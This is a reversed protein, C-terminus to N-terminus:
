KVTLTGTMNPHVDCAFQYTGAPLAPVAYNRTAVGPFIEGKFVSSGSQDHIDINHPIGDDQNDFAITFPAQAPAEISQQEYMINKATVQVTTAGAQDSPAASVPPQGSPAGSAPPQGSAPASAPPQQSQKAASAIQEDLWSQFEAPSVAEVTFQMAYHGEGCLEACQGRFTGAQDVTFDFSNEKGPVVDRKFLFQPVYFAHIVDPSQLRLHVKQGVPVYMQPVQQHFRVQTGDPSLYEFAWQFRSAVARIQVPAAADTRDVDNLTQWSIFFLFIVIATPVLTWVIELLNNGHVQPPLETDTPRRRYRIVAFVILAEVFLFIAVAFLFVIDYLGRIETGQQTTAAPPFFASWVNGLQDVVNGRAALIGLFVVVAILAAAALVLSPSFGSRRPTTM